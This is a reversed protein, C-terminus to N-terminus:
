ATLATPDPFRNGKFREPLLNMSRRVLKSGAHPHAWHLCAGRLLAIIRGSHGYRDWVGLNEGPEDGYVVVGGLETGFFIGFCYRAVAPMSGLWEYREIIAKAEAISIPRM